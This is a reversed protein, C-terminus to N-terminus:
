APSVRKADHLDSPTTFTNDILLLAGVAKCAKVLEAFQTVRLM